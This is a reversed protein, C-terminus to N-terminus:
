VAAEASDDVVKDVAKRRFHGSGEGAFEDVLSVKVTAFEDVRDAM